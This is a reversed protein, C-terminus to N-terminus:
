KLWTDIRPIRFNQFDYHFVLPNYHLKGIRAECNLRNLNKKVLVRKNKIILSQILKNIKKPEPENKGKAISNAGFIYYVARLNCLEHFFDQLNFDLVPEIMVFIKPHQKRLETMAKFRKSVLPAKSYKRSLYDSTTEITAGLLWNKPIYEIYKLYRAPNKSFMCYTNTVSMISKIDKIMQILKETPVAPSNYDCNSGIFFTKHHKKKVRKIKEIDYGEKFKDPFNSILRKM